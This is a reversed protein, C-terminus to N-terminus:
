FKCVYDNTKAIITLLTLLCPTLNRIRSGSKGTERVRRPASPHPNGCALHCTNNVPIVM